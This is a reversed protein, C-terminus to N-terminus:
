LLGGPSQQEAETLPKTDVGMENNRIFQLIQEEDIVDQTEWPPVSKRLEPDFLGRNAANRAEVEGALRMYDEKGLLRPDGGSAFGEIRQILHQIEHLPRATEIIDDRLVLNGGKTVGGYSGPVIADLTDGSVLRTDINGVSPYAGFLVDHGFVEGLTLPADKPIIGESIEGATEKIASYAQSDDIEFRWKGDAGKFWGTERWIDDRSLGADAMNKATKLAAKDATLANSGAFVGVREPMPGRQNLRDVIVQKTPSWGLLGEMVNAADDVVGGSMRGAAVPAVTAAVGSLMEATDGARQMPTRDPAFMRQGARSSDEIAAVPNVMQGVNALNRGFESLEPGAYYGVRDLLGGIREDLAKRRAQGAEQSFFDLVGM